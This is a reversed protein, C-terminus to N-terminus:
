RLDPIPARAPPNFVRFPAADATIRDIVQDARVAQHLDLFNRANLWLDTGVILILALAGLRPTLRVQAPRARGGRV